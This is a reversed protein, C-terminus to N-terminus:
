RYCTHARLRTVLQISIAPDEGIQVVVFPGHQRLVRTVNVTPLLDGLQGLRVLPIVLSPLGEELAEKILTPVDVITATVVGNRAWLILAGM